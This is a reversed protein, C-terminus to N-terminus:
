ALEKILAIREEKEADTMQDLTGGRQHDLFYRVRALKQNNVKYKYSAFMAISILLVIAGGMVARIAILVSQPQQVYETEEGTTPIQGTATLIIGVTWIAFAGALKRMLTMMGSFSGTPRYGLKLEGVDVTDPFIIWPMMQAGGIGIGMVLAFVPVLITPASTPLLALALGGIIYCPLGARFAFQKTKHNMLYRVVPYMLAASVMLPAVMFLSSFEMGFLEKGHWVDNTYYVALATIIDMCMFASAYMLIHWRYSKITYPDKYNKFSFKVKALSYPTREKVFIGALILPLGFLLGFCVSIILWFQTANLTRNTATFAAEFVLLPILYSVGASVMSFILKISNAKNREKYDPSIDGSLSCFPVQSITSVTNYFIYAVAAWIIKSTMSFSNVPAFLMGLAFMMLSGGLIIYPKRRGFKSRTNDSISGMLPDSIADWAKSIMIITSAAAASIGLAKNFFSLVICSMLATGGGDMMAGFGYFLKEKKPIYDNNVALEADNLKAM